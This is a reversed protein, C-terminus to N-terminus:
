QLDAMQAQNQQQLQHNFDQWQHMVVAMAPRDHYVQDIHRHQADHIRDGLRDNFSELASELNGTADPIRSDIHDHALSQVV